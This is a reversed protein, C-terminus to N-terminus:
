QEHLVAGEAQLLLKIMGTFDVSPKWGTVAMLKAPSGVLTVNQKTILSPREEVHKTWDLGLANFAISVFDRVRHKVGTAVIFDDPRDSNLIRHFADVYDPAYGWDIEANLDGLVIKDQRGNKIRAAGRIIKMSVFKDQRLSSEHNYLIGNAVFLNHANRYFRGTFYGATKTIGYVCLPHIPTREDQRDAATGKFIHSSAAYFIRTTPSANKVAELVNIYAEVHIAYSARFLEADADLRDESSHHYAAFFYLEDPRFRTITQAVAARDLIDVPPYPEAPAGSLSTEGRDIGLVAYGGALLLDTLLRGDQGRSGIIIAKKM